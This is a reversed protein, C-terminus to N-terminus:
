PAGTGPRLLERLDTFDSEVSYFTLWDDDALRQKLSAADWAVPLIRRKMNGMVGMNSLNSVRSLTLAIEVETLSKLTQPFDALQQASAQLKAQAFQSVDAVNGYMINRAQMVHTTIEFRNSFRSEKELRPWADLLDRGVFLTKTRVGSVLAFGNLKQGQEVSASGLSDLGLSAQQNSDTTWRYILVGHDQLADVVRQYQTNFNTQAARYSLDATGVDAQTPADAKAARREAQLLSLDIRAQVLAQALTGLQTIGSRIGALCTRECDGAIESVLEFSKDDPSLGIVSAPKRSPKYFYLGGVDSFPLWGPISAVRYQPIKIFGEKVSETSLDELSTILGGTTSCGVLWAAAAIAAIRGLAVSPFM